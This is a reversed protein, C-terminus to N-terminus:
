NNANNKEQIEKIAKELELKKSKLEELIEKDTRQLSQNQSMQVPGAYNWFRRKFGRGAGQGREFGQGQSCGREFGQSNCGPMTYGNCYGLARGTRPGLGNPGSRDGQPMFRMEKKNVIEKNEEQKQAKEKPDKEM